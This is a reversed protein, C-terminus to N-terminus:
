EEKKPKEEKIVKPTVALLLIEQVQIKEKLISQIEDKEIDIEPYMSVLNDWTNMDFGCAYKAVDKCFGIFEETKAGQESQCTVRVMAGCKNQISADSHTYTEIRGNM